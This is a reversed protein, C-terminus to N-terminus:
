YRIREKVCEVLLSHNKDLYRQRGSRNRASELAGTWLQGRLRDCIACCQLPTFVYASYKVYHLTDSRRKAIRVKCEIFQFRSRIINMATRRMAENREADHRAHTVLYGPPLLGNKVYWSKESTNM